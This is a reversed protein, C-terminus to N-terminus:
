PDALQVRIVEGDAERARVLQGIGVLKGLKHDPGHLLDLCTLVHRALNLDLVIVAFCRLLQNGFGVLLGVFDEPM